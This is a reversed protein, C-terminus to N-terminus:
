SNKYILKNDKSFGEILVPEQIYERTYFFKYGNYNLYEINKNSGNISVSDIKEDTIMGIFIQLKRQYEAEDPSTGEPIESQRSFWYIEKELDNINAILSSMLSRGNESTYFHVNGTTDTVLNLNINEDIKLIKLTEEEMSYPHYRGNEFNYFSIDGNEDDDVSPLLALAYISMSLSTIILIKMILSLTKKEKKSM